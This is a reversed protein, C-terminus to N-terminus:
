IRHFEFFKSKEERGDYHEAGAGNVRLLATDNWESDAELRDSHPCSQGWTTGNTSRGNQCSADNTSKTTRTSREEMTTNLSMWQMRLPSIDIRIRKTTLATNRLWQRAIIRTNAGWPLVRPPRVDTWSTSTGTTRKTRWDDEM